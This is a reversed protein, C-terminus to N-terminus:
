QSIKGFGAAAHSGSAASKTKQDPNGASAFSRRKKILRRYRERCDGIPRYLSIKKLQNLDQQTYNRYGNEDRGVKLLGENEYYKIARQSLGLQEAAEHIRM